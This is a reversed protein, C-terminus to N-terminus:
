WYIINNQIKYDNLTALQKINEAILAKNLISNEFRSEFINVLDTISIEAKGSKAVVKIGDNFVNDLHTKIFKSTQETQKMHFKNTLDKAESAKLIKM